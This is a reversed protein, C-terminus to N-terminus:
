IHQLNYYILGATMCVSCSFVLVAVIIAIVNPNKISLRQKQQRPLKADLIERFVKEDEPSTFARKPIIQFSNKSASHILLFLEKSEIVKSFSGWDLKTEVFQNKFAIYEEDMTCQIPSRMREDKKVRNAVRLPNIFLAFGIFTFGFVLFLFSSSGFFGDRLDSHMLAILSITLLIGMIFLFIIM